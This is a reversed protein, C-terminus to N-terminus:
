DDTFRKEVTINGFVTVAVCVVKLEDGHFETSFEKVELIRDDELLAETIRQEIDAEIYEKSKGILEEWEIGYDDSFIPYKWRETSLALEIAQRVADIGDCTGEIRNGVLHYTYSPKHSVIDLGYTKLVSM